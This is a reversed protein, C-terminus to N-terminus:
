RTSSPLPKLRRSWHYVLLALIILQLLPMGLNWYLEAIGRAPSVERAIKLPASFSTAIKLWIAALWGIEPDATKYSSVRAALEVIYLVVVLAAVIGAATVAWDSRRVVLVLSVAIGFVTLALRVIHIPASWAAQWLVFLAVMFLLWSGAVLYINSQPIKM